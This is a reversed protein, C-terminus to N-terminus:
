GKAYTSRTIKGFVVEGDEKEGAGFREKLQEWYGRGRAQHPEAREAQAVAEEEAAKKAWEIFGLEKEGNKKVIPKDEEIKFMRSFYPRGALHFAALQNVSLTLMYLNLACPFQAQLPIFLIPLM